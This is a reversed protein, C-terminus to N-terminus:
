VRGNGRPPTKPRPLPTRREPPKPPIMRTSAQQSFVQAHEKRAEVLRRARESVGLARGFEEINGPTIVEPAGHLSAIKEIAQLGPEGAHAYATEMLISASELDLRPATEAVAAAFRKKLRDTALATHAAKKIGELASLRARPNSVAPLAKVVREMITPEQKAAAEAAREGLVPHSMLATLHKNVELVKRPALSKRGEVALRHMLKSLLEQEYDEFKDSKRINESVGSLIGALARPKLAPRLETEQFYSLGEIEKQQIRIINSYGGLINYAAFRALRNASNGLLARGLLRYYENEETPPLAAKELAKMAATTAHPNSGSKIFGFLPATKRLKVLARAANNATVPDASAANLDELYLKELVPHASLRLQELVDQIVTAQQNVSEGGSTLLPNRKRALAAKWLPKFANPSYQFEEKIFEEIGTGVEKLVTEHSDYSDLVGRLKEQLEQKMSSLKLDITNAIKRFEDGTMMDNAHLELVSTSVTLLGARREGYNKIIDVLKSM